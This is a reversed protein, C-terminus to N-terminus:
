GTRADHAAVSIHADSDLDKGSGKGVQVVWSVEGAKGTFVNDKGTLSVRPAFATLLTLPQEGERVVKLHRTPQSYPGYRYYVDSTAQIPRVEPTLFAAECRVDEKIALHDEYVTSGREKPVKRSYGFATFRQAEVPK